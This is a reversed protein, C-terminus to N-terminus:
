FGFDFQAPTGSAGPLPRATPEITTATAEAVVPAEPADDSALNAPRNADAHILKRMADITRRTALRDHWRGLYHAPTYFVERKELALTNGVVVVAPIHWLALQLYCMLAATRDIDQCHAWM